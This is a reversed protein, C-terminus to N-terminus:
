PRHLTGDSENHATGCKSKWSASKWIYKKDQVLICVLSQQMPPAFALCSFPVHSYVLATWQLTRCLYHVTTDTGIGLNWKGPQDPARLGNPGAAPFPELLHM